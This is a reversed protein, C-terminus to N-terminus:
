EQDELRRTLADAVRDAPSPEQSMTSLATATSAALIRGVNRVLQSGYTEIDYLSAVRSVTVAPLAESHVSIVGDNDVVVLFATQVPTPDSV